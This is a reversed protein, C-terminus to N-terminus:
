RKVAAHADVGALALIEDDCTDAIGPKKELIAALEERSMSAVTMLCLNKSAVIREQPNSAMAKFRVYEASNPTRFAIPGAVTMVAVVDGTGYKERLPALFADVDFDAPFNM